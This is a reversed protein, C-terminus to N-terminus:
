YQNTIKEYKQVHWKMKFRNNKINNDTLFLGFCYKSFSAEKIRLNQLINQFDSYNSQEQKIEIILLNNLDFSNHSLYNNVKLNMDMTVRETENNNVLTLRQFSNDLVPYLKDIDYFSYKELFNKEEKFEDISFVKPTNVQIRKKNTRGKNNKNKVELFSLITDSYTRIRIKQRKIKGNEHMKYFDFKDTDFYQTQYNAIQRGNITQIKYKQSIASFIPLLMEISTVYKTDIRDMLKIKSMEDLSIQRMQELNNKINLFELNNM